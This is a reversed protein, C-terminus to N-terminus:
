SCQGKKLRAGTRYDDKHGKEPGAGVATHRENEQLGLSPHMVGSQADCPCLLLSCNGGKSQWGGRNQHLGSGPALVRLQSMNLKEDLLIKLNKAPSSETFEEGLRYIYQGSGVAASQM